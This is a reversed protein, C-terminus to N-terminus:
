WAGLARRRMERGGLQASSGAANSNRSAWEGDVKEHWECGIIARSQRTQGAVGRNADWCL